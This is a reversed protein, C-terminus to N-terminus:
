RAKLCRQDWGIERANDPHEYWVISVIAKTAFLALSALPNKEVAHIARVRDAISLGRLRGLRFLLLPGAWTVSTLCALFLLRARTNLHGVFDSLDDVFWAIRDAPPPHEGDRSWLAEALARANDRDRPSLGPREAPIASPSRPRALPASSPEVPAAEVSM